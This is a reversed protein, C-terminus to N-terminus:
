SGSLNDRYQHWDRLRTEYGAYRGSPFLIEDINMEIASGNGLDHEESRRTAKTLISVGYSKRFEDDMVDRLDDELSHHVIFSDHVPLCVYSSSLFRLMVRDAIEADLNQLRVGHGTGLFGAIPQHREIIRARLASSSIGYGKLAPVPAMRGNANVLRNLERKIIERPVAPLGIDYADGVLEAGVEAYMMVPHMTSYDVEVTKKDDITIHQRYERPINQWWGGYFRGGENWSGNNFIRRLRKASLDIAGTERKQARFDSEMRAKLDRLETDPLYLDVWHDALLRNIRELDSRMMVAHKTDAYEIPQKEADRLVIPNPAEPTPRYGIKPLSLRAPGSLLKILRETARVRTVRGKGTRDDRFGTLVIQVYGLGVLGNFAATFSDYTLFLADYRKGPGFRDKGLSVGVVSAPDALWAVYLDLVICRVADNFRKASKERRARHRGETGEIEAVLEALCQSLEPYDSWRHVDIPRSVPAHWQAVATM